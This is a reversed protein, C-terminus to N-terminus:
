LPFDVAFLGPGLFLLSVCIVILLIQVQKDSRAFATPADQLITLASLLAGFVAAVQTFLGATLLAGVMFKAIGYTMGVGKVFVSVDKTSWAVQILRTGFLIFFFGVTIRLLFVAIISFDLLAPFVSLM